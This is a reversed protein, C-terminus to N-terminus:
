LPLNGHKRPPITQRKNELLKLASALRPRCDRPDIVADVYGLSAAKFPNAFSERYEEVFGAIAADADEAEMAMVRMTAEKLMKDDVGGSILLTRSEFLAKEYPNAIGDGKKQEQDNDGEDNLRRSRPDLQSPNQM